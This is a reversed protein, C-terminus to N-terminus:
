LVGRFPGRLDIETDIRRIKIKPNLRTNPLLANAGNM